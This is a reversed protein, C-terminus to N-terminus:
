VVQRKFHLVMSDRRKGDPKYKNSKLIDEEQCRLSKIANISRVNNKDTHFQIQEM